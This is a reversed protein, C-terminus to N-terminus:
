RARKTTKKKKWKDNCEKTHLVPSVLRMRRKNKPGRDGQNEGGRQGKGGLGRGRPKKIGGQASSSHDSKIHNGVVPGEKGGCRERRKSPGKQKWVKGGGRGSINLTLSVHTVAGKTNL